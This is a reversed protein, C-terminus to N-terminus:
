LGLGLKHTLRGEYGLDLFHASSLSAFILRLKTWGFEFKRTKIKLRHTNPM